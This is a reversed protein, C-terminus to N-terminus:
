RQKNLAHRMLRAFGRSGLTKAGNPQPYRGAIIPTVICASTHRCFGQEPECSFRRCRTM